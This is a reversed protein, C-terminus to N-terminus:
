PQGVQGPDHQLGTMKSMIGIAPSRRNDAGNEILVYCSGGSMRRAAPGVLRSDGPKIDLTGETREQNISDIYAFIGTSRNILPSGIRLNNAGTIKLGSINCTTQVLEVTNAAETKRYAVTILQYVGVTNKAKGAMLVFGTRSDAVETPYRQQLQTLYTVKKDDAYIELNDSLDVVEATLVMEALALGNECIITGLTSNASIRNLEMAAPFIAAVMSMGIALIGLAILIEALTFGGRGRRRRRRRSDCASRDNSARYCDQSNMVSLM